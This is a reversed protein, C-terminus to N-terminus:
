KQFDFSPFFTSSKSEAKQETADKNMNFQAMLALPPRVISPILQKQEESLAQGRWIEQNAENLLVFVTESSERYKGQPVAWISCFKEDSTYYYVYNNESFYRKGILNKQKDKRVWIEDNLQDFSLPFKKKSTKYQRLEAILTKLALQPKEAEIRSSLEWAIGFRAAVFAILLVIAFILSLHRKKNFTFAQKFDFGEKM